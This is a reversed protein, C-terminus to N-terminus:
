KTLDFLQYDQAGGRISGESRYTKGTKRDTFIEESYPVAYGPSIKVGLTFNLEERGEHRVTISVGESNSNINVMRSHKEFENKVEEFAPIVTSAIFAKVDKKTKALSDKDLRHKEEKGKLFTRLDKKWDSM